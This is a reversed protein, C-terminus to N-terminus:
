TEHDTEDPYISWLQPLSAASEISVGAQIIKSAPETTFGIFSKVVRNHDEQPYCRYEQM